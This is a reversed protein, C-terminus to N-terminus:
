AIVAVAATNLLALLPLMGQIAAARGFRAGGGLRLVIAAAVMSGCAFVVLTWGVTAQGSLVLVPGLVAGVALFLNYFGQNFAFFAAEDAAGQDALGFLRWVAPRRWWLSEAVFIGVHLVGALVSLLLALFTM